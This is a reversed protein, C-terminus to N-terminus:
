KKKLVTEVKEMTADEVFASRNPSKVIVIAENIKELQDETFYATTGKKGNKEGTKKPSTRRRAEKTPKKKSNKNEM